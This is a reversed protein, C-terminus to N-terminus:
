FINEIINERKGKQTHIFRCYESNLADNPQGAVVNSSRNSPGPIGRQRRVRIWNGGACCHDLTATGDVTV